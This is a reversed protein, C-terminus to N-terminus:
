IENCTKNDNKVWFDCIHSEHVCVVTHKYGSSLSLPVQSSPDFLHFIPVDAFYLFFSIIFINKFYVVKLNALVDFCGNDWM